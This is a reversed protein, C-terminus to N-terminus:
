SFEAFSGILIYKFDYLISHDVRFTTYIKFENVKDIGIEEIKEIAKNYGMMQCTYIILPIQFTHPKLCVSDDYFMLINLLYKM